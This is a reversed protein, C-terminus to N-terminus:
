GEVFPEDGRVPLIAEIEVQEHDFIAPGSRLAVEAVVQPFGAQLTKAIRGDNGVGEHKGQDPFVAEAVATVVLRPYQHFSLAVPLHYMHM